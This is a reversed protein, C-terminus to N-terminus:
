KYPSYAVTPEQIIALSVPSFFLQKVNRLPTCEKTHWRIINERLLIMLICTTMKSQTLCISPELIHKHLKRQQDYTRIIREKSIAHLDVHIILKETVQVTSENKVILTVYKLALSLYDVFTHFYSKIGVYSIFIIIQM